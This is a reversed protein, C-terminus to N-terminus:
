APDDGAGGRRGRLARAARRLGRVDGGHRQRLVPRDPRQDPEQAGGPVRWSGDYPTQPWGEIAALGDLAADLPPRRRRPPVLRPGDGLAAPRDIATLDIRGAVIGDEVDHVSYAVDDALDMVQAELCQGPGAVGDRLWDFVPRDDDYVGFKVVVRPSGDAHM